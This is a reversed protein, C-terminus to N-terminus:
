FLEPWGLVRWNREPVIYGRCLSRPLCTRHEVYSPARQETEESSLCDAASTLSVMILLLLGVAGGIISRGQKVTV